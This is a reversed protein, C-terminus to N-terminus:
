TSLGQSRRGRIRNMLGGMKGQPQWMGHTLVVKADQRAQGGEAVALLGKLAASRGSSSLSAAEGLAGELKTGGGNEFYLAQEWQFLIAAQVRPNKGELNMRMILAALDKGPEMFAQTVERVFSSQHQGGLNEEANSATSGAMLSLVQEPSLPGYDSHQTTM